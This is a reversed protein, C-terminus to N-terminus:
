RDHGDKKEKREEQRGRIIVYAFFCLVGGVLILVVWNAPDHM